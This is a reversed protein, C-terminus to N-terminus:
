SCMRFWVLLMTMSVPLIPMDVDVMLVMRRALGWMSVVVIMLRLLLASFCARAVVRIMCVLAM